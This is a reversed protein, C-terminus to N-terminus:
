AAFVEHAGQEDPYIRFVKALGTIEFIRLLRPQSCAIAMNGDTERTRRLAGILVGLGTSDLYTVGQLDAIIHKRGGSVLEHIRQRVQTATYLDIEGSLVLTVGESGWTREVMQLNM